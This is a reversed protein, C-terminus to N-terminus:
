IGLSQKAQDLWAAISGDAREGLTFLYAFIAIVAIPFIFVQVFGLLKVFWTARAVVPNARMISLAMQMSIATYAAVFMYDSLTAFDSIPKPTSIYLAIASLLTTVQIAIISEFNRAPIFVALYAVALIIALPVLVRLQYDTTRRLMVWTYNFRYYPLMSKKASFDTVTHILGQSAGVYQTLRSWGDIQFEDDRLDPRPPQIFFPTATNAAQFSISFRQKDYPYKRLDPKFVFKGTIRFLQGGIGLRDDAQNDHIARKDVLPKNDDGSPYANTFEIDNISVKGESQISLFFEAHFSKDSSDIKYIRVMDVHAYVVPVPEVGTRTKRYQVPALVFNDRKSPKWVILPFDASARDLTFSWDRSWGSFVKKGAELKRLKLSITNRIGTVSPTPSRAAADVIMALQDAYMGGYGLAYDTFSRARDDFDDRRTVEVLRENNVDPIGAQAIEFLDGQYDLGGNIPDLMRGITGLGLFAPIKIGLGALANLFRTGSDSGISLLLMDPQSQKIAEMTARVADGSVDIRGEHWQKGVVSVEDAQAMRELAGLFSETYRDGKRGIFFVRRYGQRVFQSFVQLEDAIGRVMTFINEYAMFMENRSIESIFPVSAQGITEVVTEGHTSSWLGILAILRHDKLATEVLAKTQKIKNHNDFFVLQISRGFLGGARNILEARKTIFYRIAQVSEPGTDPGPGDSSIIVGIRYPEGGSPSVTQANTPTLPYTAFLLVASCAVVVLFAILGPLKARAM